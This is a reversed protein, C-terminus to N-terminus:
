WWFSEQMLTPLSSLWKLTENVALFLSVLRHGCVVVKKFLYSSRRRERHKVDVSVTHNILSPPFHLSGFRYQVQHLPSSPLGVRSEFGRQVPRRSSRDGCGGVPLKLPAHGAAGEAPPGSARLWWVMALATGHRDVSLGFCCHLRVGPVQHALQPPLLETGTTRLAM